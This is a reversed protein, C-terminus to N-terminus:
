KSTEAAAVEQKPKGVISDYVDSLKKKRDNEKISQWLVGIHNEIFKEKTVKKVEAVVFTVGDVRM